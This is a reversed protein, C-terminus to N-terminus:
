AASSTRATSGEAELAIEYNTKPLAGGTWTVGTLDGKGMTIRLEGDGATVKGCDEFATAKWDKLTKGDFVDVWQDKKTLLPEAKKTRVWKGDTYVWQAPEDQKAAAASTATPAAKDKGSKGGDTPAPAAPPRCGAMGLLAALALAAVVFTWNFPQTM